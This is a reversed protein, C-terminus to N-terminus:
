GTVDIYGNLVVIITLPNFQPVCTFRDFKGQNVLQQGAAQCDDVAAVWTSGGFDEQFVLRSSTSASAAPAAVATLAMTAVAVALAPAFFARARNRM